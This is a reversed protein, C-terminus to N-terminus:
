EKRSFHTSLLEGLVPHRGDKIALTDTFEPRTYSSNNTAVNTFACLMDLMAIVESTRYLAAINKRIGEFLEDLVSHVSVRDTIRLSFPSPILASRPFFSSKM